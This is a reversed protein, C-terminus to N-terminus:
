RVPTQQPAACWAAFRDFSDEATLLETALM